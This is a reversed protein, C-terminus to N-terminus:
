KLIKKIEKIFISPNFIPVLLYVYNKTRTLAVYFLRREEEYLFTDKEEILSYIPNNKKKSPLGLENNILNIIIVNDSELGKSKHITLFRLNYNKKDLKFYGNNLWKIREKPIFKYIDFNNRGLILVEKEKLINLVKNLAKYPNVYYIIKIPKYLSKHSKLEKKIQQENQMIFKGAVDILEQSNRYTNEIKFTSVDPFYEKFNLFINLNCGSFKYISQFDDGVVTLNAKTNNVISKVLDLRLKSTDQFEDIIIEKYPEIKHNNAYEIAKKILDDFDCYNNVEKEFNYNNLIAYIIYLLPNHKKVKFFKKFDEKNLNNTNYLNIFNAILKENEQHIITKLFDLYLKKTIFIKKTVFEYQKKLFKNDFLKEMFFNHINKKLYSDDIIEFYEEKLISMALKHFTYVRIKPNNIKEKLSNVSENTFSICLIQEPKINKINILYKIKGVLTLTKGSGAGAIILTNKDANLIASKQENDLPYGNITFFDQDM